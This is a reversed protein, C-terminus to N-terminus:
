EELYMSNRYMQVEPINDYKDLVKVIKFMFDLTAEDRSFHILYEIYGGIFAILEIDKSELCREFIYILENNLVPKTDIKYGDVKINNIVEQIICYRGHNSKCADFMDSYSKFTGYGDKYMKLNYGDVVEDFITKALFPHVSKIALYYQKAHKIRSIGPLGDDDFIIDHNSYNIINSESTKNTDLMLAIFPDRIFDSYYKLVEGNSFYKFFYDHHLNIIDIFVDLWPNKFILVSNKEINKIKKAKEMLNERINEDGTFDVEDLTLITKSLLKENVGKIYKLYLDKFNDNNKIM